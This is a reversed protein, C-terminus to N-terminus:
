ESKDPLLDTVMEGEIYESGQDDVVQRRILMIVDGDAAEIGQTPKGDLRNGIEQWCDKDGNIAREVVGLAIKRLAFGSKVGNDQYKRLAWELAHRWDHGKSSNKNGIPAGRGRPTELVASM